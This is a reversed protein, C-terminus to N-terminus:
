IKDGFKNLSDKDDSIISITNKALWEDKLNWIKRGDIYKVGIPTYTQIDNNFVIELLKGESYKIEETFIKYINRNEDWIYFIDLLRNLENKFDDAKISVCDLRGCVVYHDPLIGEKYDKLIQKPNFPKSITKFKHLIHKNYVTYVRRDDKPKHDIHDKRPYEGHQYIRHHELKEKTNFGAKCRKCKFKKKQKEKIYDKVFKKMGNLKDM